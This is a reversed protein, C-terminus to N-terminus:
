LIHTPSIDPSAYGDGFYWEVKNYYKSQNTFTIAFPICGHIENTIFKAIPKPPQIVLDRRM